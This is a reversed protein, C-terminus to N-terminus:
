RRPQSWDRRDADFPVVPFRRRSLTWAGYAAVGMTILNAAIQEWSGVLWAQAMWPLSTVAMSLRLQVGRLYFMAYTSVVSAVLMIGSLWGNWMLLSAGVSLLVFFLCANRQAGRSRDLTTASTATRSASVFTLAAAAHAELLVHNAIWLCGAFVSQRRLAVDCRCLLSCVNLALAALGTTHVLIDLPMAPCDPLSRPPCSPSFARLSPTRRASVRRCCAAHCRDCPGGVM